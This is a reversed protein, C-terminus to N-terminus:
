RSPIGTTERARLLTISLRSCEFNRIPIRLALVREFVSETASCGNPNMPFIRRVLSPETGSKNCAALELVGMAAGVSVLGIWELGMAREKAVTLYAWPWMLVKLYPSPQVAVM